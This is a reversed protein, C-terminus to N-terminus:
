TTANADAEEMLAILDAKRANSPVEKGRLELQERLQAVTLQEYSDVEEVGERGGRMGVVSGSLAESVEESLDESLEEGEEKPPHTIVSGEPHDIVSGAPIYIVSEVSEAVEGQYPSVTPLDGEKGEPHVPDTREDTEEIKEFDAPGDEGGQSKMYEWDRWTISVESGPVVPGYQGLNVAPGTYRARVYANM